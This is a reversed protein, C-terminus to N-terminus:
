CVEYANQISHFGFKDFQLHHFTSERSGDWSGNGSEALRLARSYHKGKSAMRNEPFHKPYQKDKPCLLVLEKGGSAAPIPRLISVQTPPHSTGIAIPTFLHKSSTFHIYQQGEEM